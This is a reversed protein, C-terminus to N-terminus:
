EEAVSKELNLGPVFTKVKEDEDSDDEVGVDEWPYRCLLHKKRFIIGVLLLLGNKKGPTTVLAIIRRTM